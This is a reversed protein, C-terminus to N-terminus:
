VALMEFWVSESSCGGIVVALLVARACSTCVAHLARHSIPPSPCGDVAVTVNGLRIIFHRTPESIVPRVAKTASISHRKSKCFIIGDIKSSCVSTWLSERITDRSPCVATFVDRVWDCFSQHCIIVKCLGTAVKSVVLNLMWFFFILFFGLLLLTWKYYCIRVKCFRLICHIVSPSDWEMLDSLLWGWKLFPLRTIQVIARSHFCGVLGGHPAMGMRWDCRGQLVHDRFMSSGFM